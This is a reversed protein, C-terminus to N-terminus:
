KGTHKSVVMQNLNVIEHDYFVDQTAAVPNVSLLGKYADAVLLRLSDLDFALGMGYGCIHEVYYDGCSFGRLKSGDGINRVHTVDHTGAHVRAITGNNLTVYVATFQEADTDEELVAVAPASARDTSSADEEAEEEEVVVVRKLPHEKRVAVGGAATHALITPAPLTVTRLSAPDVGDKITYATPETRASFYAVCISSCAALVALFLLTFM